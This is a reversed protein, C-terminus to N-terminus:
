VAQSCCNRLDGFAADHQDEVLHEDAKPERGAARLFKPTRASM